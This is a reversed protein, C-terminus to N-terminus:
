CSGGSVRKDAFALGTGSLHLGSTQFTTLNVGLAALAGEPSQLALGEGVQQCDIRSIMGVGHLVSSHLRWLLLWPCLVEQQKPVRGWLALLLELSQACIVDQTGSVSINQSCCSPFGHPSGHLTVGGGERCTM